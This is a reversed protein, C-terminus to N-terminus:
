FVFLCFTVCEHLRHYDFFLSSLQLYCSYMMLGFVCFQWLTCEFHCLMGKVFRVFWALVIVFSGLVFNSYDNTPRWLCMPHVYTNVFYLITPFRSMPCKSSVIIVLLWLMCDFVCLRIWIYRKTCFRKRGHNMGSHMCAYMCIHFCMMACCKSICIRARLCVHVIVM